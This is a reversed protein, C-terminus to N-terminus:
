KDQEQLPIVWEPVLRRHSVSLGAAWQHLRNIEESQELIKASLDKILDDANDYKVYEGQPHGLMVRDGNIVMEYRTLDTM